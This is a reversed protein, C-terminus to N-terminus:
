RRGALALLKARTAPDLLDGLTNPSTAPPRHLVADLFSTGVRDTRHLATAHAVRYMKGDITYTADRTLVIVFEYDVDVEAEATKKPFVIVPYGDAFEGQPVFHPIPCNLRYAFRGIM